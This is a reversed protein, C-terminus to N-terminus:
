RDKDSATSGSSRTSPGTATTEWHVGKCILDANMNISWEVYNSDNLKISNRNSSSYPVYVSNDSADGM